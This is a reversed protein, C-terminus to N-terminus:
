RPELHKRRRLLVVIRLANRKDDGHAELNKRHGQYARRDPKHQPVSHSHTVIPRGPSELRGRFATSSPRQRRKYHEGGKDSDTGDQPDRDAHPIAPAL